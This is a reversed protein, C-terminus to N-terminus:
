FPTDDDIPPAQVAARAVDTPAEYGAPPNATSWYGGRGYEGDNIDVVLRGKGEYVERVLLVWARRGILEAAAVDIDQLDPVGLCLLKPKSFGWSKETLAINDYCVFDGTMDDILSISFMEGGKCPRLTSKEVRVLYCKGPEYWGAAKSMPVRVM